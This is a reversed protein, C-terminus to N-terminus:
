FVYLEGVVADLAGVGEREAFTLIATWPESNRAHAALADLLQREHGRYRICLEAVEQIGAADLASEISRSFSSM